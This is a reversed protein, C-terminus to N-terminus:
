THTSSITVSGIEEVQNSLLKQLSITEKQLFVVSFRRTENRSYQKKGESNSDTSNTSSFIIDSNSVTEEM